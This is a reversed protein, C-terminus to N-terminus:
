THTIGNAGIQETSNTLSPSSSKSKKKLTPPTSRRTKLRDRRSSPTRDFAMIQHRDRDTM